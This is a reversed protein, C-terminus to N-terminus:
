KFTTSPNGCGEDGAGRQEEHPLMAIKSGAVVGIKKKEVVAEVLEPAGDKLVKRACDVARGSVGVLAGLQDRTQLKTQSELEPLGEQIPIPPSAGKNISRSKNSKAVAAGHRGKAEARLAAILNEAKAAAIARDSKTLDRRTQKSLAYTM